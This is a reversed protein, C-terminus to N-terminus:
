YHQNGQDANIRELITRALDTAKNRQEVDLRFQLDNLALLLENMADRLVLLDTNLGSLSNTINSQFQLNNMVGGAKNAITIQM